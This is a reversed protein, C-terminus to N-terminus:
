CMTGQRKGRTKSDSNIQGHYQGDSNNVNPTQVNPYATPNKKINNLIDVLPDSKINSQKYSQHM